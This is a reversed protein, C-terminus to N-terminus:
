WSSQVGNVVARQARGDLRNKVWHTASYPPWCGLAPLGPKGSCRTCCCPGPPRDQPTHPLAPPAPWRAAGAEGAEEASSPVQVTGGPGRQLLPCRKCDCASGAAAADGAPPGLTPSPILLLLVSGEKCVGTRLSLPSFWLSRHFPFVSQLNPAIIHTPNKKSNESYKM